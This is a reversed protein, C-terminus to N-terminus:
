VIKLNLRDIVIKCLIQIGIKISNEDAIFNPNHITCNNKNHEGQTGLWMFVSPVKQSICSFDEGAPLPAKQVLVKDEGLLASLSIKLNECLKPDNYIFSYGENYHLIGKCDYSSAINEVLKQLREKILSTTTNSFTRVTGEIKVYDAIVNYRSGGSITGLTIVANEHPGLNRSVISQISSIINGAVVIADKGENPLSGHSSKGFIEIVINDSKSNVVESKFSVTGTPIDFVHLAYAENVIPNELLGEEIMGKAGGKPAGEENPQFMFKINGNIQNKFQSLVLATGLIISTHIDHGCAHMVNKNKSCYSLENKEDIPLADMDGRLLITKGEGDGFLNAIVGYGGINELIELPYSKLKEVIKGATRKEETGLEPYSHIDRRFEIIEDLYKDIMEDIKKM